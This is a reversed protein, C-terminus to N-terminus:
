EGLEQLYLEMDQEIQELPIGISPDLEYATMRRELEIQLEPTINSNTGNTTWSATIAHALKQQDKRPLELVAALVDNYSM